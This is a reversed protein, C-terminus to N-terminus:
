RGRTVSLFKGANNVVIRVFEVVVTETFNFTVSTKATVGFCTSDDSDILRTEETTSLSSLDVLFYVNTLQFNYM